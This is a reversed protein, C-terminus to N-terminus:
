IPGAWSNGAGLATALSALLGTGRLHFLRLATGSSLPPAVHNCLTGLIVASGSIAASTAFINPSLTRLSQPSICVRDRAGM